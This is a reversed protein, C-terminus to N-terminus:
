ENEDTVEAKKVMEFSIPKMHVDYRGIEVEGTEPDEYQAIYGAKTLDEVTQHIGQMCGERWGSKYSFYASAGVLGLMVIQEWTFSFIDM